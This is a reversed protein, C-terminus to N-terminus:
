DRPVGDIDTARGSERMIQPQRSIPDDHTGSRNDPQTHTTPFPKRGLGTYVRIREPNPVTDEGPDPHWIPISVIGPEIIDLGTFLRALQEPERLPIQPPEGYMQTFLALGDLLHRTQSFQSLGLYSGPCVADMYAAVLAAPNDQDPVHLLTDTMMMAVPEDLDILRRLDPHELVHEVCRVNALLYATHDNGELLNQGDQAILPDNDLYVVRADPLLQQAVEHIHGMTPVGSDFGVFQRVGKKILYRVMRRQAARKQRVLYPLQPACVLIRDADVRDRESHHCGGLWYDRIRAISPQYGEGNAAGIPFTM